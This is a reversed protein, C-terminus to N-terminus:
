PMAGARLRLIALRIKDDVNEGSERVRTIRHPDCGTLLRASARDAPMKANALHICPQPDQGIGGTGLIGLVNTQRRLTTTDGRIQDAAHEGRCEVAIKM